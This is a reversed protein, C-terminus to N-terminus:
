ILRKDINITETAIIKVLNAFKPHLPNLLFNSEKEIISSPVQLGIKKNKQLFIDGIKKTSHISPFANWDQPLLDTIIKEIEKEPLELTLLCFKKPAIAAPLHALIELMCLSISQSTYLMKFGASNWRGGETYAGYGSLDNIYKYKGIRYVIM